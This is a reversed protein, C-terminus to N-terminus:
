IGRYFTPSPPPPNCSRVRVYRDIEVTALNCFRLGGLSGGQRGIFRMLSGQREVKVELSYFPKM